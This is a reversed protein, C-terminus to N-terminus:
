PRAREVCRLVHPHGRGCASRVGRLGRAREVTYHQTGETLEDGADLQTDRYRMGAGGDSFHVLYRLREVKWDRM